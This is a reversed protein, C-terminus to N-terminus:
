PASLEKLEYSFKAGLRSLIAVAGFVGDAFLPKLVERSMAGRLTTAHASALLIAGSHAAIKIADVEDASVIEDTVIVESSMTRLAQEIGSARRYGSLINVFTDVYAVPDFECREDVISVRKKGVSGLLRALSAIATTKGGMSAGLILLSPFGMKRWESFLEGAFDCEGIPMRFILTCVSDVGVMRAGEYRASGSVGVRIGCGASIYGSAITDRHAFIGGETLRLLTDEIEVSSFRSIFPYNEGGIVMSSRGTSSLRVESLRAEINYVSLSIDSIERRAREPLLEFLRSLRVAGGERECVTKNKEKIM